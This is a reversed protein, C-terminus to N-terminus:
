VFKSKDLGLRKCLTRLRHHRVIVSVLDNAIRNVTLDRDAAKFLSENVSRRELSQSVQLLKAERSEDVGVGASTFGSSAASNIWTRSFSPVM